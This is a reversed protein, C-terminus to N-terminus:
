RHKPNLLVDQLSERMIQLDSAFRDFEGQQYRMMAETLGEVPYHVFADWDQEEDLINEPPFTYELAHSDGSRELGGLRTYVELEKGTVTRVPKPLYDWDFKRVGLAVPSFSITVTDPVPVEQGDKYAMDEGYNLALLAVRDRWMKKAGGYKKLTFEAGRLHVAPVSIAISRWDDTVDLRRGFNARVTDALTTAGLLLAPAREQLQTREAVLDTLQESM